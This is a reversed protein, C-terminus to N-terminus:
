TNPYRKPSCVEGADLVSAGVAVESPAYDATWSGVNSSDLRYMCDRYRLTVLGTEAFQRALDRFGYGDFLGIVWSRDAKSLARCKPDDANYKPLDNAAIAELAYAVAPPLELPGSRWEVTSVM